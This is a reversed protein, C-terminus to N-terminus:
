EGVPSKVSLLAQLRPISVIQRLKSWMFSADSVELLTATILYALGALSTTVALVLFQQLLPM